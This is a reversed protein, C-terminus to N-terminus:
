PARDASGSSVLWVRGAGAVTWSSGGALQGYAASLAERRVPVVVAMDLYAADSTRTGFQDVADTTREARSTAVM